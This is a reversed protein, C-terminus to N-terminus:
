QGNQANSVPQVLQNQAQDIPLVNTTSANEAALQDQVNKTAVAQIISTPPASSNATVDTLFLIGLGVGANVTITNQRNFNDGLQQGWNQGLSGFGSAVSRKTSNSYSTFITGDANQTVNSGGQLAANGYGELFSSAFLNHTKVVYTPLTEIM